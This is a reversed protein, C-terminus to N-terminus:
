FFAIAGVTVSRLAWQQVLFPFPRQDFLDREDFRAPSNKLELVAYRPLRRVREAGLGRAFWISGLAAGILFSTILHRLLSTKLMQLFHSFLEWGRTFDTSAPSSPQTSM